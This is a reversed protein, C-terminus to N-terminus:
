IMLMSMGFKWESKKVGYLVEKAVNTEGFRSMLISDFFFTMTKWSVSLFM